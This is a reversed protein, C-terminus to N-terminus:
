PKRLALIRADLGLTKLVEPSSEEVAVAEHCAAATRRSPRATPPRTSKTTAASAARFRRTAWTTRTCGWTVGLDPFVNTNYISVLRTAAAAVDAARESAVAPYAGRYYAALESPIRTAAEDNSAYDTKLLEVGKKKLFPLTAPLLGLAMANDIARDPLEFTHTPRNHCDVCQMQYRPLDKITDARQRGRGPLRANGWEQHQPVRGVPDEAAEQRRRQLSDRRGPRLALRPHRAGPQGRGDDHARDPQGHQSRGRRIHPDGAPADVRVEGALSVNRLDRAHAGAQRDRHGLPDAAPLLQVRGRHAAAHGGGQERGLRASRRRRPVDVCAVQAHPSVAHSRFEPTMVHCSQGCFQVTEMHEVARYTGQTGVVVNLFTVAGGLVLLRRIAVQRDVIQDALRQRARKRALLVGVPVMVLGAVLIMPILMFVVIGIYPNDVHGRAQLPLVFLWSILATGVLGTGLLSLWHSTVLILFPRDRLRDDPAPPM